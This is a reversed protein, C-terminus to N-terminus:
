EITKLYAERYKAYREKYDDGKKKRYEPNNDYKKKEDLRKYERQKALFEPDNARRTKMYERQYTRKKERLEMQKREADSLIEMNYEIIYILYDKYVKEIMIM